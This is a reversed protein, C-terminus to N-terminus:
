SVAGAHQREWEALAALQRQREAEAPSVDIGPNGAPTAGNRSGEVTGNIVPGGYIDREEKEEKEEPPRNGDPARGNETRHGVTKRGIGSAPKPRKGDPAPHELWLKYRVTVTRGRHGAAHRVITIAGARFLPTIARRVARLDTDSLPEPRGLCRIALMEHGEWWSPDKDRDLAVLAMYALVSLSRPPVKGAYLRYAALANSSGM